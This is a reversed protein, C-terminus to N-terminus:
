PKRSPALKEAAQLDADANEDDDLRRYAASRMRLLEPDNADLEIAATLDDVAAQADKQIMHLIARFKLSEVDEPALVISRTVDALAAEYDQKSFRMRARSLYLPASEPNRAIARDLLDAVKLRYATEDAPTAAPTAVGADLPDAPRNEKPLSPRNALLRELQDGVDPLATIWRGLKPDTVAKQVSDGYRAMLIQSQQTDGSDVAAILSALEIVPQYSRAIPESHLRTLVQEALNTRGQSFLNFSYGFVEEIRQPEEDIALLFQEWAEDIEGYDLRKKGLHMHGRPDKPAAEEELRERRAWHELWGVRRRGNALYAPGLRRFHTRYARRRQTETWQRNSTVLGMSEVKDALLRGIQQHSGIDPHVHDMFCNNGPIADPSAEVALAQADVLPTDTENAVRQLREHLEEIMRLPCIDLQRAQRYYERAQAWEGLRDYCRAMRFSLLAYEGDITEAQRYLKLAEAPDADDLETARDFLAQWQQLLDASLEARHESKFPPCDRLNEGLNVLILPVKATRCAEVMALMSEEYQDIVDQRWQEDRHYSAYGSKTDLRAEVEPELDSAEDLADQEDPEGQLAQRALTVTRLQSGQRALWRVWAPQKRESRYSRDELFENHGTAVVILDPDYQLVEGLLTALRYSAYSLGGCNVTEYERTSDRGELELEMWKLLSSGNEYPRGHVTSGGLGFIRFTRPPKERAFEQPGFFLLRHRATTYTEEDEDFEFLLSGGFGATAEGAVTGVDFFRLSGELLLFPLVALLVAILPFVARRWGSRNQRDSRNHVKADDTKAPSM